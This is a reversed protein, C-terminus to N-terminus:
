GASGSWFWWGLLIGVGLGSLWGMALGVLGWGQRKRDVDQYFEKLVPPMDERANEPLPYAGPGYIGVWIEWSGSIRRYAAQTKESDTMPATLVAGLRKWPQGEPSGSRFRM